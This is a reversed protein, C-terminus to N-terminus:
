WLNRSLTPWLISGLMLHFEFMLHFSFPPVAAVIKKGNPRRVPTTTMTLFIKVM